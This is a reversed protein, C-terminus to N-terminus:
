LFIKLKKKEEFFKKLDDKNNAKFVEEVNKIKNIAEQTEKSVSSHLIIRIKGLSMKSNTKEDFSDTKELLAEIEEAKGVGDIIHIAERCIGSSNVANTYLAQNTEKACLNKGADTYKLESILKREESSEVFATDGGYKAKEFFSLDKALGNFKSGFNINSIYDEKYVDTLINKYLNSEDIYEDFGVLIVM